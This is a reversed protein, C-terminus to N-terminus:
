PKEGLRKRTRSVITRIQSPSALRSFKKELKLWIALDAAEGKKQREIGSRLKKYEAYVELDREMNKWAKNKEIRDKFLSDQEKRIWDWHTNFDEKTTHPFIEVLLEWTGDKKRRMSVGFPQTYLEKQGFFFYMELFDKFAPNDKLGYHQLIEGFIQGYVPPLFDERFRELEDFEKVPILSKDGTIRTVAAKFDTSREMVSYRDWFLRNWDLYEDYKKFPKKPFPCGVETFRQKLWAEKEQFWQDRVMAAAKSYNQDFITRSKQAM